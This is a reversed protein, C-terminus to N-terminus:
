GTVLQSIKKLKYRMNTIIPAEEAPNLDIFQINLSKREIGEPIKMPRVAHYSNRSKVFGALQNATFPVAWFSNLKEFPRIDNEWNWNDIFYKPKYFETGGGFSNQWNSDTFYYLLTLIKNAADTHPPVVGEGTLRSFEFQVKV